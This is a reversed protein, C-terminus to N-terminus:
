RSEKTDMWFDHDELPDAYRIEGSPLTLPHEARSNVGPERVLRDALMPIGTLGHRRSADMFYASCSPQLTCRSGIAPRIASRYIGVIIRAPWLSLRSMLSGQGADPAIARLRQPTWLSRGAALQDALSPHSKLLDRNHMGIWALASGSEIFEEANTTTLM